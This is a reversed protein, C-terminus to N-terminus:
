DKGYIKSNSPRTIHKTTSFVEKYPPENFKAHKM